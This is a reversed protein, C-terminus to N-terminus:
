RCCCQRACPLYVGSAVIQTPRNGVYFRCHHRHQKWLPGFQQRVLFQDAGAGGTMTDNGFAGNLINNGTNGILVNNGSNGAGNIDGGFLLLLREFNDGLAHDLTSHVTDFGANASEIVVDGYNDVIYTDNGLGGQMTDAGLYGNLVNQGANGILINDLANGTGKYNGSFMFFLREM